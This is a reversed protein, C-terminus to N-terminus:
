VKFDCNLRWCALYIEHNLIGGTRRGVQAAQRPEAGSALVGGQCESAQRGDGKRQIDQPPMDCCTKTLHNLPIPSVTTLTAEMRTLNGDACVLCRTRSLEALTYDIM